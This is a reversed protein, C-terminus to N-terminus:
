EGGKILESPVYHNVIILPLILVIVCVVVSMIVLYGISTSGLTRLFVENFISKNSLTKLYLVSFTIIAALFEMTAIELILSCILKRKTFGFAIKIGYEQKRLLVIVSMSSIISTISCITVMVTLFINEKIIEENM